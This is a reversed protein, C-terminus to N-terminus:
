PAPPVRPARLRSREYSALTLHLRVRGAPAAFPDMDTMFVACYRTGAWLLFSSAADGCFAEGGGLVV